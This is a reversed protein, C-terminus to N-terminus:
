SCFYIGVMMSMWVVGRGQVLFATRAGNRRGTTARGSPSVRADLLWVLLWVLLWGVLNLQM